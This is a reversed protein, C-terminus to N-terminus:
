SPVRSSRLTLSLLLSVSHPHLNLFTVRQFEEMSALREKWNASDLQQMCTAPLVAASKEECVELQVFVCLCVCVTKLSKCEKIIKSSLKAVSCIIVVFSM